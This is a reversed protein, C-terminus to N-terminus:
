PPKLLHLVVYGCLYAVALAAYLRLMSWTWPSIKKENTEHAIHIATDVTQLEDHHDVGPSKEDVASM